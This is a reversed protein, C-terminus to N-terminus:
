TQCVDVRSVNFTATATQTGTRTETQAGTMAAPLCDRSFLRDRSFFVVSYKRVGTQRCCINRKDPLLKM